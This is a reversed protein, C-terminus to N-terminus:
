KNQSQLMKIVEPTFTTSPRPGPVYSFPCFFLVWIFFYFSAVLLRSALPDKKSLSIWVCLVATISGSVASTPAIVVVCLGIAFLWVGALIFRGRSFLDGVAPEASSMTLGGKQTFHLGFFLLVCRM